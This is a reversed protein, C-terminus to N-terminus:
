EFPLEFRLALMGAERTYWCRRDRHITTLVKPATNCSARIQQASSRSKAASVGLRACTTTFRASTQIVLAVWGNPTWAIRIEDDVAKETIAFKCVNGSRATFQQERANPTQTDARISTM